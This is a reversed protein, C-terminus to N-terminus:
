GIRITTSRTKPTPPPTPPLSPPVDSPDRTPIDNSPPTMTQGTFPVISPIDGPKGRTPTGGPTPSNTQGTVPVGSPIDGPKTTPTGGSQPKMTKGTGPVGSPVDGPTKTPTGGPQPSITNVTAPAGSPVDCRCFLRVEYDECDDNVQESNRCLFGDQVNCIVNNQNAARYDLSDAARLCQIDEVYSGKEQCYNHQLQIQDIQEYDGDDYPPVGSLPGDDNFVESWKNCYSAPSKSPIGNPPPTMTQGTVPVGSPIDGPKRTPTGGPQPSNTQGTVPGGPPTGDKSPTCECYVRVEYDDCYVHVPQLQNDCVLGRNLNCSVGSQGNQAYSM